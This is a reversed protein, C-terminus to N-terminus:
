NGEYKSGDLLRLIGFGEELGEVYEGEYSRGISGTWVGQGHFKGGKYNGKYISGDPWKYVGYGEYLDDVFSGEYSIGNSQTM